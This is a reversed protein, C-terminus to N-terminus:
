GLSGREMPTTCVSSSLAVLGIRVAAPTPTHRVSIDHLYGAVVGRHVLRRRRAFRREADPRPERRGTSPAPTRPRSITTTM